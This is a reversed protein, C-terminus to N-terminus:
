FRTLCKHHLEKAFVALPRFDKVMNVLPGNNIKLHIKFVDLLLKMTSVNIKYIELIIEVRKEGDTVDYISGPSFYKKFGSGAILIETQLYSENDRKLGFSGNIHTEYSNKMGLPYNHSM